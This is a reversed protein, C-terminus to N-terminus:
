RGVVGRSTETATPGRDFFAAGPDFRSTGDKSGSSYLQPQAAWAASPLKVLRNRFKEFWDEMWQYELKVADPLNGRRMYAGSVAKAAVLRTLILDVTGPPLSIRGTLETEVESAGVDLVFQLTTSDETASDTDNSLEALVRSDYLM